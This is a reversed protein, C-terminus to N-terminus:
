IYTKLAELGRETAVVGFSGFGEHCRLHHETLPPVARCLGMDCARIVTEISEVPAAVGTASRVVNLLAEPYMANERALSM